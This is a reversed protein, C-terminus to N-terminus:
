GKSGTEWALGLAEILEETADIDKAVFDPLNIGTLQPLLQELIPARGCRAAGDRFSIFSQEAM